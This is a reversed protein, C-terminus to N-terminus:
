LVVVVVLIVYNKYKPQGEIHILPGTAFAVRNKHDMCGKRPFQPPKYTQEIVTVM